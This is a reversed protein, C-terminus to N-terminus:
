KSNEEFVYIVEEKKSLGLEERSVKELYGPNNHLGYLSNAEAGSETKLNSLRKELDQLQTQFNNLEIAGNEGFIAFGLITILILVYISIKFM